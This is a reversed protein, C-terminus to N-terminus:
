GKADGILDYQIGRGHFVDLQQDLTMKNTRDLFGDPIVLPV